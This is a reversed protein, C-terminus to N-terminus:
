DQQAMRELIDDLWPEVKEPFRDHAILMDMFASRYDEQYYNAQGRYFYAKGRVEPSLYISLLNTLLKDTEKWDSSAFPGDVIIKLSKEGSNTNEGGTEPLTEKERKTYTKADDMSIHRRLAKETSSTLDRKESIVPMYLAADLGEGTEIDGLLALYPLPRSRRGSLGKTSIGTPKSGLSLEVPETLSNKGPTMVASGEALSGSDVAGYYYPVGPIPSDKYPLETPSIEAIVETKDARANGKLPESSRLLAIERGIPASSLVLSISVGEGSEVASIGAIEAPDDAMDPLSSITVEKITVNKFPIFIKYIRGSETEALVAYYYSGNRYPSDTFSEAGKGATGALVAGNLNESNIPETHRYIRYSADIDPPSNWSLRVQPDKSALRIGTVYPAYVDEGTVRVPNALILACVVFFLLSGPYRRIIM